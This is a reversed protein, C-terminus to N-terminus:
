TPGDLRADALDRVVAAAGAWKMRWAELGSGVGIAAAGAARAARVAAASEVLARCGAGGARLRRMANEIYQVDPWTLEVHDPGVLVEFRNRWGAWKLLEGTPKLPVPTVLALRLRGPWQELRADAGARPCLGADALACLASRMRREDNGADAVARRYLASSGPLLVELSVVLVQSEALASPESPPKRCRPFAGAKM